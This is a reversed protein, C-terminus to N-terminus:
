EESALASNKNLEINKLAVAVGKDNIMTMSLLDLKSMEKTVLGDFMQLQLLKSISPSLTGTIYNSNLLLVKLNKLEYLSTPIQGEIENNYLSLTELKSLNGISDPLLGSFNNMFLVLSVLSNANTISAPITGSLKNFSLNLLVLSKMDGISNPLTGSISNKYLNLTKLNVLDSIESPLFGVLNNGPLQISIVKDEVLVVGYWSSVPSNLNWKSTWNQGNTSNYLKVLANKESISVEAKMLLSVMFILLLTSTKKM